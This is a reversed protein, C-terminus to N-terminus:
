YSAEVLGSTIDTVKSLINLMAKQYSKYKKESETLTLFAERLEENEEPLLEKLRQVESDKAQLQKELELIQNKLSENYEELQEKVSIFYERVKMPTMEQLVKIHDKLQAIQADKTAITANKASAFEKSWRLKALWALIAALISILTIITQLIDMIEEV